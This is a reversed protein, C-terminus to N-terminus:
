FTNRQLRFFIRNGQFDFVNIKMVLSTPVKNM